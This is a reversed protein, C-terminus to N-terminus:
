VGFYRTGKYAYGKYYYVNGTSESVVFVNKNEITGKGIAVGSIKLEDMDIVFLDSDIDGNETLEATFDTDLDTKSIAEGTIPLEDNKTEYENVADSVRKLKSMYEEYNVTRIANSGIVATSTVLIFMIVVALIITSTTIGRKM